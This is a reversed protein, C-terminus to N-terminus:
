RAVLTKQILKFIVTSLDSRLDVTVVGPLARVVLLAGAPLENFHEHLGHRIQRAVRHRVVSGGISKSIILGCQAPM